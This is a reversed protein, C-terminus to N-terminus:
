GRGRSVIGRRELAEVVDDFSCGAFCHLLLRGDRGDKISLSPNRDGREHLPGPCQCQFNGADNPPTRCGLARAVNRANV